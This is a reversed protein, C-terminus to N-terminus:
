KPICIILYYRNFQEWRAIASLAAAIAVQIAIIPSNVM